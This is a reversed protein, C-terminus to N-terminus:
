WYACWGALDATGAAGHLEESAARVAGALSAEEPSQLDQGELYGLYGSEPINRWSIRSHSVTADNGSGGDVAIRLSSTHRRAQCRTWARRCGGAWWIAPATASHPRWERNNIQMLLQRTMDDDFRLDETVPESLSGGRWDQLFNSFDLGGLSQLGTKGLYDRFNGIKPDNLAGLFYGARTPFSLRNLAARMLPNVRSLTPDANIFSSYLNGQGGYTESLINRSEDRAMDGYPGGYIGLDREILSLPRPVGIGANGQTDQTAAEPPSEPPAVSPFTGPPPRLGYANFPDAEPPVYPATPSAAPPVAPPVAPPAVPPAVPPVTGLPEGLPQTASPM